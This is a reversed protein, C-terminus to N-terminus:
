LVQKYFIHSIRCPENTTKDSINIVSFFVPFFPGCLLFSLYKFANVSFSMWILLYTALIAKLHTPEPLPSATRIIKPHTAGTSLVANSVANRLVGMDVNLLRHYERHLLQLCCHHLVLFIGSSFFFIGRGCGKWSLFLRVGKEVRWDTPLSSYYWLSGCSLDSYWGPQHARCCLGCWCLELDSCIFVCVFHLLQKTTQTFVSVSCLGSWPIFRTPLMGAGTVRRGCTHSKAPLFLAASLTSCARLWHLELQLKQVKETRTLNSILRVLVHCLLWPSSWQSHALPYCPRFGGLNTVLCVAVRRM